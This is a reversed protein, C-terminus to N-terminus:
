FKAANIGFDKISFGAWISLYDSFRDGVTSVHNEVQDQYVFIIKDFQRHGIQDAVKKSLDFKGRYRFGKQLGGPQVQYYFCKRRIYVKKYTFVKGKVYILDPEGEKCSRIAGFPGRDRVSTNTCRRTRLNCVIGRTGLTLQRHTIHKDETTFVTGDAKKSSSKGDKPWYITAIGYDVKVNAQLFMGVIILFNM